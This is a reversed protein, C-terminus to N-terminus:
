ELRQSEQLRDIRSRADYAPPIQYRRANDAEYQEQMYEDQAQDVYGQGSGHHQVM